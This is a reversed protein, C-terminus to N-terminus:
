KSRGKAQDIPSEGVGDQLGSRQRADGGRRCARSRDDPRRQNGPIRPEGKPSEDHRRHPVTEGAWHSRETGPGGESRRGRLDASRRSREPRITSSCKLFKGAKVTYVSLQLKGDEIEFKASIPRGHGAAVELAKELTIKATELTKLDVPKDEAWCMPGSLAFALGLTGLGMIRKM